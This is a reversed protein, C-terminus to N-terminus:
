PRFAPVTSDIEFMHDDANRDAEREFSAADLPANEKPVNSLLINEEERPHM